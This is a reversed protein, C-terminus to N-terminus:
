CIHREMISFCFIWHQQDHFYKSGNKKKLAQKFIILSETTEIFILSTRNPKQPSREKKQPEKKSLKIAQHQWGALTDSNMRYIM